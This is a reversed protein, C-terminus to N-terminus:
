RALEPRMIEKSIQMVPVPDDSFRVDSIYMARPHIREKSHHAHFVIKLKGAKDRFMASHGVGALDQPKQLIPNGSYKTWPGAPSKATAFGIGYFPSEYSNASYTMYYLDKHKVVFAGENVRPWVEEWPQSVH